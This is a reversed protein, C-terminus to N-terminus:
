STEAGALIASMTAEPRGARAKAMARVASETRRAVEKRNSNRFFPIPAGCYIDCDIRGAALARQALFFTHQPLGDGFLCFRQPLLRARGLCGGFSLSRRHRLGRM